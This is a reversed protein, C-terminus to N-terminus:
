MGTMQTNQRGDSLSRPRVHCSNPEFEHHFRKQERKKAPHWERGGIGRAVIGPPLVEVREGRLKRQPM